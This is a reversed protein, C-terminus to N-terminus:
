DNKSTEMDLALFELFMFRISQNRIHDPKGRFGLTGSLPVGHERLLAEFNLLTEFDPNRRSIDRIADCMFQYGFQYYYINHDAKLRDAATYLIEPTLAM